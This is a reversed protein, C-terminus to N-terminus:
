LIELKMSNVRTELNVAGHLPIKFVNGKLFIV